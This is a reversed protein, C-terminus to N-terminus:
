IPEPMLEAIGTRVNLHCIAIALADGADEAPEESLGLLNMVMRRVQEKEAGGFGVLAQKIRRPAYEYVPLGRESCASVAAGRAEGLIVATGVNKCYFVGEIAAAEPSTRDIMALIGKRIENLCTSHPQRAPVRLVGFDVASFRSGVAAVV